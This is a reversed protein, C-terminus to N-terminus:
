PRIVITNTVTPPFMNLRTRAAAEILYPQSLTSQELQWQGWQENLTNQEQQLTQLETFLLRHHHRVMILELASIFVAITLLILLYKM